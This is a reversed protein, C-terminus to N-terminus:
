EKTGLQDEVNKLKIDTGLRQLYAILAIIEREKLPVFEQGLAEIDKKEQDFSEKIAEVSLLSSEIKLAQEQMSQRANAIDEETYPVGLTVM